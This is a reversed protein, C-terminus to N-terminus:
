DVIKGKGKYDASGDMPVDGESLDPFNGSGTLNSSKLDDSYTFEGNKTDTRSYKRTYTGSVYFHDVSSSSVSFIGAQDYSQKSENPQVEVVFSLGIALAGSTTLNTVLTDGNVVWVERTVTNVALIVNSNFGIDSLFQKSTLSTKKLKKGDPTTATLKLNFPAYVVNGIVLDKAQANNSAFAMLGTVLACGLISNLKM